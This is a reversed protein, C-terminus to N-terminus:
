ELLGSRLVEAILATSTHVDFKALLRKRYWVVTEYSVGLEDAIIKTSKDQMLLRIVDKERPTLKIRAAEAEPRLEEITEELVASTETLKQKTLRLRRVLLTGGVSLLLVLFSAIALMRANRYLQEHAANMISLNDSHAYAEEGNGMTPFTGTTALKYEFDPALDATTLNYMKKITAEAQEEGTM